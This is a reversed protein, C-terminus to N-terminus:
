ITLYGMGAVWLTNIRPAEYPERSAMLSSAAPWVTFSAQRGASASAKLLSPARTRMGIVVTSNNPEPSYYATYERYLPGGGTDRLVTDTAISDQFPTANARTPHADSAIQTLVTTVAVDAVKGVQALQELGRTTGCAVLLLGLVVLLAHM